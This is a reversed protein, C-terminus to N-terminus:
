GKGALAGAVVLGPPAPGPSWWPLGASACCWLLASLRLAGYGGMALLLGGLASEM